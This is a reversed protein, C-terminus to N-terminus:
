PMQIAMLQNAELTLTIAGDAVEIRQGAGLGDRTVPYATVYTASAWDSPLKWTRGSYGEESYAMIEKHDTIWPMPFFINNGDRLTVGNQTITKSSSSYTATLGDSYRVTQTKSTSYGSETYDEVKHRNLYMYPVTTLAIGNKARDFSANFDKAVSLYNFDDEAQYNSGFLFDEAAWVGEGFKGSMGGAILSAPLVKRKTCDIDLWWTAPSLGYMADNRNGNELFEVTVDVGHNRLLRLVKRMTAEGQDVTLNHYASQRAYFADIQLTHTLDLRVLEYLEQLRKHLLGTEWEKTLNVNYLPLGNLEGVTYLSGDANKCILDRSLYEQWLPSNEYADHITVHVSVTTNYKEAQAQLWYFSQRATADEPRKLAPNFEHFAPYKCDHGEYQWGVLYVVKHIGRSLADIGKIVDLAEAFNLAVRSGGNGDPLAMFLKMMMSQSYDHMYPREPAMTQSYDYVADSPNDSWSEKPETIEQGDVATVHTLSIEACSVREAYKFAQPYEYPVFVVKVFRAKVPADRLARDSLTMGYEQWAAPNGESEVEAFKKWSVKSDVAFIKDMLAKTATVDNDIERGNVLMNRRDTATFSSVDIDTADTYYFEVRKFSTDGYGATIASAGSLWQKQGLDIVTFAQTYPAEWPVEYGDKMNVGKVIQHSLWCHNLQPPIEGSVPISPLGDWLASAQADHGWFDNCPTSYLSRWTSKDVASRTYKDTAPSVDKGDVSAVRDLYLEACSVRECYASSQPYEYPIFVVKVFRTKVPNSDLQSNSFTTKYTTWSQFNGKSDVEGFKRWSVKGDVAFIKDMLAKTADAYNDIGTGNVLMNDRDAQTFSSTDIDTADTCYFEVRKFTTDGYGGTRAGFSSIWEEHGLDIVAFAQTYPAEWPVQYDAAMSTGKVIQHSLWCNNLDAPAQTGGVNDWLADIQADYGWHVNCPTTYLAQWTSKDITETSYKGDYVPAVPQGEFKTVHGLYLEACSVREAYDGRNQPYAYPHFVVKVYRTKVPRNDLDDTSFAHEYTKWPTFDGNTNVEGFKKWEIGHDVSFTKNMLAKVADVNLTSADLDGGIGSGNVFMNNRDEDSFTETDISYADTYYFEVREFTTDGWGATRAGFSSIWEGQGLDIVAFAQTYPAEWPVEYADGKGTGKVIQHSLWSNKLGDPASEGEVGDWLASPVSATSWCNNCPSAYVATWGSKDLAATTYRERKNVKITEVTIKAVDRHNFTFVEGGPIKIDLRTDASGTIDALAAIAGFSAALVAMPLAKQINLKM